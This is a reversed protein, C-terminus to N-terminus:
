DLPRTRLYRYVGAFDETTKMPLPHLGGLARAGFAIQATREVVVAAHLADAPDRGITVMGHNALLAASTAALHRVAEEGLGATGTMVYDCVPVEGGVYMISEEICPPIPQRACAFMSAYVPHSHIVGGVEPFARYCALHLDKESSASRHGGVLEGDATLVVLDELTMAEYPLSSPTVCVTGDALRASVNGSTGEVLGKRSLEKAVALVALPGSAEAPSV